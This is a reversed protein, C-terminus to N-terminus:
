SYKVNEKELLNPFLIGNSPGLSGSWAWPDNFDSDSM